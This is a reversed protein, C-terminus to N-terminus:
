AAGGVSSAEEKRSCNSICSKLLKDTPVSPTDAKGNLRTLLGEAKLMYIAQKIRTEAEEEGFFEVLQVMDGNNHLYDLVQKTTMQGMARFAAKVLAAVNPRPGKVSDTQTEDMDSNLFDTVSPVGPLIPKPPNQNLGATEYPSFGFNCTEAIIIV